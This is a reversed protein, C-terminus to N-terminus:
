QKGDSCGRSLIYRTHTGPGFVNRHTETRINYGRKRLAYVDAALRTIGYMTLADGVTISGNQLLHCVVKERKHLASKM